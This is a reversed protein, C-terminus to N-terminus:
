QAYESLPRSQAKKWAADALAADRRAVLAAREADGLGSEILDWEQFSILGLAYQNRAIEQQLEAAHRMEERISVRAIADELAARAEVLSVGTRQETATAVAEARAREAIAARVDASQSGGSYLPLSVTLGVAVRNTAPPWRDGGRSASAVAAIAPAAGARAIDVEYEAAQVKLEAVRSDPLSRAAAPAATPAPPPTVALHETTVFSAPRERGMARALQAQVLAAARATEAVDATAQLLAVRSKAVSGKNERGGEFRAEVLRVNERRREENRRVLSTLEQTYLLQVFAVRLDHGVQSETRVAELRASELQTDRLAATKSTKGGDFLTYALSVGTTFENSAVWRSDGGGSPNPTNPGDDIGQRTTTVDASLKPLRAGRSSEVSEAVTDISARGARLDPNHAAAEALCKPWDVEESTAAPEAAATPSGLVLLAAVLLSM